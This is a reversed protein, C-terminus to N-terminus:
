YLPQNASGTETSGQTSARVSAQASAQASRRSIDARPSPLRTAGRLEPDIGLRRSAVQLIVRLLAGPGFRMARRAATLSASLDGEGLMRKSLRLYARSKGSRDLWHMQEIHRDLIRRHVQLIDATRHTRTLTRDHQRYLALDEHLPAITFRMYARILFDLDEALFFEERFGITAFAERRALYCVGVPKSIGLEEARGVRLRKLWRGSQDIQSYDTYVVDVDARANLFALMRELAMPRFLDDDSLWTLFQGTSAEIGTNLAAPLRRTHSHRISRVRSDSSVYENIIAPADNSSGDDVIILEWHRYSQALCSGIAERLFAEDANRTPMIIIVVPSQKM